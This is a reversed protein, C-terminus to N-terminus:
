QASAQPHAHIHTPLTHILPHAHMDSQTHIHICVRTYAYMQKHMPNRLHSDTCVHRCVEKMSGLVLEFEKRSLTYCTVDVHTTLPYTADTNYCRHTISDPDICLSVRADGEVAICNAHRPENLMLALEGFYDPHMTHTPAKRAHTYKIM